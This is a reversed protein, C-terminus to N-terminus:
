FNHYPITVSTWRVNTLTVSGTPQLFRLWGTWGRWGAWLFTYVRRSWAEHDIGSPFWPRPPTPMGRRTRPTPLPWQQEHSVQSRWSVPGCSQQSVPTSQSIDFSAFCVDPLSAALIRSSSSSSSLRRLWTWSQAVGHVAARWAERDM